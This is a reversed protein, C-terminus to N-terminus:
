RKSYNLSLRIIQRLIRRAEAYPIKCALLRRIIYPNNREIMYLIDDVNQTPYPNQVPARDAQDEIQIDSNEEENHVNHELDQDRDHDDHHDHNHDEHDEWEDEDFINEFGFPIGPHPYPYSYSPQEYCQGYYQNYFPCNSHM